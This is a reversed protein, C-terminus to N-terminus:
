ALDDLLTRLAAIDVEIDRVITQQRTPHKPGGPASLYRYTMGPVGCAMRWYDPLLGGAPFLEIVTTGFAAFVLNALAAGHTAVVVSATAFTEIQERVSLEGPDVLEFGRETLLGLVEADNVVSRNNRSPGRTIYVRRRPAEALAPDLLRARLFEGVWPANKETTAPLGPVVLVGARVHRHEDADVRQDPGIGILELLERQFRTGVPVYWRDPAAITSQELVGIRPLVDHLFHYYNSDGRSALVGLRGPVELPPEPFPNVFLPHERPRTTGFYSSLEELLEGTGTIVARHPGLVRGGPLEAAAVRPVNISDGPDTVPLDAPWGDPRAPRALVEAPRVTECRGGTSAAAEEMTAVAGTPLYGNRWRSLRSTAPAVARTAQVYAPKLYPFLPRLRPPLRVM